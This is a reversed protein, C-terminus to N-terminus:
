SAGNRAHSLALNMGAFTFAAPYLGAAKLQFTGGASAGVTVDSRLLQAGRWRGRDESRERPLPLHANIKKRRGGRTALPPPPDASFRLPLSSVTPALAPPLTLRTPAPYVGGRV